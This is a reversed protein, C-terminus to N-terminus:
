DMGLENDLFDFIEDDSASEILRAVSAAGPEAAGAAAGLRALLDQLTVTLRTYVAEDRVLAALAAEDLRSLEALGPLETRPPGAPAGLRLEEGLHDALSSVTPHDFLLTASLRLGTASGLRNRLGVAGLSDFGMDLFGRELEVAQPRPHGLVTAAHGRVLDVLTRRREEDSLGALRARLEEAADAPNRTADATRRAPTRVLGRLLAPVSGDPARLTGTDLRAPILVPEDTALAADFLALGEPSSMPVVGGRAIRLLDAEGLKGTMASREAWLGWALSQAPLGQERRHAALADLFANAASYNAQGTGGFTGSLSSFLVFASLKQDRTLEHLNLVADVKPRFVTDLREADMSEVVGDDLVGAVHVVGSLEVGALVEALAARDAADCAVSVAEAGLEALEACLEAPVGRRGLLLLRRVGHRVVLHRAVLSGLGGAAGTVLVAGQPDRVPVAPEGVPVRVLRGVRVVGARLLVQPEGFAVAQPLSRTDEDVDILVFRGPHESQASRVLGWAAALAPDRLDAGDVAVAGSTVLVLRSQAFRDEALWGRVLELAQGAAARVGAATLEAPPLAALVVEPIRTSATALTALDVHVDLAVGSAKLSDSLGFPDAGVLAMRDVPAPRAGAAIWDLRYLSRHTETAASRLQEARAPRLMLSGVTAVPRGGADAALLAVTDPGTPTLRVRLVSAGSAHLTVGHWAFPLISGQSEALPSFAVAHLAADLLAPHLGYRSAEAVQREPLEVEAFVEDGRRWAARLGQFAPGYGFGNQEFRQYLDAVPLQEAGAPPWAALEGSGDAGAGAGAGPALLGSAHRTWQHEDAASGEPRAYVTVPRLGADDSEGISVQVQVAGRDPLVLPAELALEEVRGCGVQDGARVALEVFATGPFLVMDAFAHDALWPHTATALRGTLVYADAGALAVAAGLLPHDPSALGVEAVNGVTAPADLWYRERQFAYTPLDIRHAGPFAQTWDVTAGDVHLDALATLLTRTESRDKRLVATAVRPATTLGDQALATLVGDPGLEVFRTVGAAELAQVGDHFRVAERVHRVWYDPDRLEEATALHGTLNSVLALSPAALELGRVVEAFEALMGDMAPSHFAHSVRLRRTKRGLGEWYAALELVAEAVPGSLVVSRPGNVAAIAVGGLGYELVEAETAEVAVMAGGTPLQQMLRGRAAVLTCADDLSYVGAVHAAAIEGVSHGILVDPVVGFSEMLRYLAVELAFLAPQTYATEHILEEAGFVVERLPRGLEGDLRACVADFATAFVPFAEYLEKGMGPRQAGQGTFLFATRGASAVGRMLGPDEEGRALAALAGPELAVARHEFVARGAALSFGVDALSAGTDLLEGLREAQGRVAEASRGSVVLPTVAGAVTAPLGPADPAQEIIVHANTGSIGFSSVGARRPEGTQPWAVAETLLSVAGASWDVHPTPEVVHLTRPLLGHRMALVMKMVGAVGSAAQTHGINSKLAGLWLPREANRQGYTALLAQAEIPDGLATGTGHAEVADVQEATLGASALAARIVRQQSPGNPATLGNSAGDQNVASGRVVALVPHGNREADSLREVLLLGVGEAWGAGDAAAAFAKCRGDPSLVRQRSFEVFTAPTAMVTVGGALALEAEGSRLAQIALHLAVLSSSCATDLTVAPGELGFTYAIRGSAVSPASGLGLYGDLGEPTERLWSGYDHYNSGIFVGTRSGRLTGPDIGAREFAEWSTELLLRQQPDVAAAERPGIGFFAPDFESVDYLFGGERAYTTGPHEPDPHYLSDVDWGRDTPFGSVVDAGSSLLEWLQEPTRVGGPLRCSMAVIAIPEDVPGTSRVVLASADTPGTGMVEACLYDALAIANPYDFALTVPLRLETATAIRNRLDVATLSDFGLDRFARDAGIAEAGNHGLVAAAEGRVLELLRDTQETHSLGALRQRLASGGREASQDGSPAVPTAALAEPLERLLSGTGDAPSSLLYRAWDLSALLLHTEDADLASQLASLALEPAMPLVGRHGLREGVAGAALGVEGWAGWAMSTAPLGADRRLRALADLFANAAAYSGQGPGGLIAASSSFLVFADLDLGATLEHLHWAGLAKPALVTAAREATLAAVVGDDLVGATHFVSRLGPLRELLRAVADRDAVDCAEIAVEAGFEALEERLEPAGPADLGRRSTLVLREAGGRALRRALQAGLGGTGGTVLVTGRPRWGAGAAHAAGARVLRKVFVGAPRVALQDETGDLLAAALLDAAHEDLVPPLDILGGWRDPHEVGVVRGLGWLLAHDPAVLRDSGGVSVAGRTAVWLPASVGADGLAQVLTGLRAVTPVLETPGASAALTLVGDVGDGVASRLREALRTRDTEDPGATLPVVCLGATELGCVVSATWEGDAAPAPLVLLWTGSSRSTAARGTVPQWRVRYRWADMAARDRGHRHYASLAPLVESLPAESDLRLSAALAGLDEREVTQWFEEDVPEASGPLAPASSTTLWYHRHQFAYTPLDVRRTGPPFQWTVPVGHVHLEAASALFRALGGEDRRLTGVVVAEPATEQLAMTLVPHPSVEIFVSHGDATLQDVTAELEVTQRLNRYWYGADLGAADLLGGTVTSYFPVSSSRPVIPALVELLESELEEVHASHSAYDVPIRRARVGDAECRALLEELEGTDGSVVVAAPGNVAAISLGETLLRRVDALPLAVSVMGGRGAIAQLARSRLAVVRAADELSLAGAVCAAAIEGQSHGVVAAPEVGHSRWLEALSVMVAFLVPQVVDVREMAAGDRLVEFLDWDVFPTLAAACEGMRDAFVPATDLLEAAMGAWQAGQGPFVLVVRDREGAAVGQAVGAAPEGAAVAALGALLEGRDTGAVAARHEFLARGATLSFGVDALSVDSDLLERLRGAQARLAQTSRGSFVLPVASGAEAPDAAAAPGGVPAEELIVHANTGSMGFSSVGARRPEGTEPWDMAETLLRVEGASWDVHPTPEDLHLTRPLVGHRMALVMKMVGAVGAAAQTHGLNSKLSGLWLPREATRQGYTALIAQAEIPDGLMTGTGHAEVVDVHEVGVGANALAARIVRQQSLGNPATLGNSAGDQNIASGRVVALVPHGNREADSLRELLLMGVGEALGMGDAAAAFAKCRGDAALGRQRSFGTFGAPTSMVAAGGALALECEGARLSQVALHLAVLSSSCATDVTVAPGELGLTYAIRGSLVSGATGTLLHGETTDASHRPGTGYGSGGAGIFVGAQSGRLATPDIGAREFSEWSTELLLRQQPDMALAERPSIGFFEADFEGAGYLFGGERAYSHGVRDPDDDFLGTLDWGRDAPFGAIVDGGTAILRWLEEPSGVGGPFRCGMAVIAVPEDSAVARPVLVPQGAPAAGVLLERVHRALLVANPHDFVVPVPLRLGTEANLRNRLEVSTLSDFGLDKFARDAAVSEADAHGLAAAVQARVLALVTREQEAADLGALQGRVGEDPTAEPEAAAALIRVIEPVGDLLPRRRAATFVPVFREWDIDACILFTDDHDLAQRLGGIALEPAMFPIGRWRLQEQMIDVAMGGERGGRPDWIGWAISTAALGRARRQQALADLFHNAAAYSGHDGSGWVGAVSSFLVFADLSDEDFLADLHRAGDVKGGAGAAFEDLDTEALPALIGLGASHVVTRIAPGEAQVRAVLEALQAHDDVNCAAVTVRCGLAALEAELEAAGPTQPGRRSTLVVHEAGNAALWRAVHAGLGGTGGTILATGRARWPRAPQEALPARELRRALVGSPRVAVQDEDRLGALVAALSTASRPTLEAPLDVLGGWLQPQELGIVRALGWLQAQDPSLLRDAGGTAVAGLTAHWLPVRLEADLLAQTLLLTGALGRPLVPHAPHPQEDLALLSLMGALGSGDPVAARLRAGVAARDDAATDLVLRRVEAGHRALGEVVAEALEGDAHAEPLVVLWDGTLTAGSSAPVPQWDIRYRWGDLTARDRLSRRYSSLAPLVGSLPTDAEVDLTASLAALDEAEVANWFLTDATRAPLAPAQEPQAPHLWYRQRQFAYTPLDIRRAGAPHRWGVHVGHVYLEAASTLFRAPGGHSRRLTGTVVAEPATEQLAMTLVPHPSVEVFVSHGDDLLRGVTAELEVTRRLNRYWYAADLQETDLLGGTVTSYFPVSSTRPAIPALLDLLEAELEEVHASHSAYDVPIRRARIDRAACVALLEDLEETDGSVVVTAPGNVAAVSLGPTLLERVREPTVPVSVMGGRGALAHLARSRLAVVRAADAMSLAGAMCAAAIEGQSHGVVAAPEVGHSRWLEALSVMVAFLVPQVVDVRELAAGDGRLVEFLDWDVFPALAAACEGMREAFVPSADLLEMAMGAWQAGQGPFVFVVRDAQDAMTGRVVGTSDAGRALADLQELFGDRDGAIVVARQELGARTVALSHGIDALERDPDAAVFERLRAAQARLGAADRASLPWALASTPAQEGAPDAVAPEPAPAQQPAPAQELIVHANTGSAGFSSVGARRPQGTEPWLVAETLLSVAGASWDVHPTPQDVHLTRPLMGHRMALVMKMVGAVGSAAQTHGINSKLSGLWLPAAADRGQGYSALLAQVEIPDGLTTGTGHAEVADIQGATLGANALAAHIVRQQSPGNPSTLGNSAGDQNIASGRVVALVPHGNREADSLRELLLVGVGEAWGTGDAAAAFPKCRGDPALGRQRSFEIFALPSAMVTAGGVVALSSEGRRLSQCALHLAVLSSSCMTDISVAPGELGFTYAIRGAAVAASGGTLLHGEAEPPLEQLGMAYGQNSVGVFVGAPTRRVAAPDIGAREFAEWVAELLLRQQPDMALAERPAIGFFGADFEAADYLFGGERAYSTGPRDPDPDYRGDLDWGRDAPVASIVDRGDRVLEWLQEPSQVEGPLRCSMAVIALPEQEGAEVEQLRRRTERLDTSVRKLYDRLKEANEM